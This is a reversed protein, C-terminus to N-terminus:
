KVEVYRGYFETSALEGLIPNRGSAASYGASGHVSLYVSRNPWDGTMMYNYRQDKGVYLKFLRYACSSCGAQQMGKNIDGVASVLAAEKEPAVIMLHVTKFPADPFAADQARAGSVAGLALAAACLGTKFGKM